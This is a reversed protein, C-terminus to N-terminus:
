CYIGEGFLRTNHAWKIDLQDLYAL